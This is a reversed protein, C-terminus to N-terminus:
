ICDRDCRTFHISLFCALTDDATIALESAANINHAPAGGIRLRAQLLFEHACIPRLARWLTRTAAEVPGRIILFPLSHMSCLGISSCLRSQHLAHWLRRPNHMYPVLQNLLAGGSLHRLAAYASLPTCADEESYQTVKDPEREQNGNLAICRFVLRSLFPLM